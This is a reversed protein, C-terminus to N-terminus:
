DKWDLFDYSTLAHVKVVEILEDVLIHEDAAGMNYPHPGYVAAPIRERRWLRADTGGISLNFAPEIGQIERVNKAILQFIEHGLPSLSPECKQIVEYEMNSDKFLKDLEQLVLQTSTGPPIRIDVEAECLDPVLNIKTGGNISGVNVTIRTLTDAAGEGKERELIKRGKRLAESVKPLIQPKLEELTKIHSLILQMRDIANEGAHPCYAAHASVGHCVIKLWVQGKEGFVINGRGHPEGNLLVDGRVEPRNELLYAAGWPGMTEEDSVLTLTIKGRLKAKLRSLYVFSIISATDGGKMDASGRGFLKGDKVKGSFPSDSWAGSREVPFEDLHGNYVIHKGKATGETVAVINPLEEKPAVIEYQLGHEDLYSSIFRVIERTDGPPNVTSIQVLKSALDVIEDRSKDIEELLYGRMQSKDMEHRRITRVVV